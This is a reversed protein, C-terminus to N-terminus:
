SVRRTSKLLDGERITRQGPIGHVVEENVSICTVAPFPVRGSYGKFLPIAGHDRFLAEVAQDIEITRTGPKAM